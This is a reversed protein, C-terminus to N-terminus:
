HIGHQAGHVGREGASLGEWLRELLSDMRAGPWPEAM